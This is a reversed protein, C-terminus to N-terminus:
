AARVSQRLIDALVAITEDIATDKLSGYGLMLAQRPSEPAFRLEDLNGVHMERRAAAAVIPAAATGPPLELQMELGSQTGYVRYEPLWRRLAALMANRRSRYMVRSARVHRDYAGSQMLQILALQNLAPPLPQLDQEARVAQVWRRPAVVWGISVAPGIAQSMSGLLAVRNPDTGQVVPPLPRDHYFESDFDDEIILGGTRRAWDLLAPRRDIALPCGFAVQRATGVCIARLSPYNDLADVLLGGADVRLPVMELGATRAAQFLRPSGPNEMGIALHGDALLARCLQTFGQGAGSFVSVTEPEAAAGRSRNLHEALVARLQPLGGPASYGLQDFPAIEAAARIAEVWKRRPFARLDPRCTYLDYRPPRAQAGGRAAPHILVDEDPGPTWSVRTASGTRGALYGETTLQGYAQTVTWRSVGLRVALMRSPPLAAGLPLRGSRIASRVADALRMHLPGPRTSTLDLLTEWALNWDNPVGDAGQPRGRGSSNTQM